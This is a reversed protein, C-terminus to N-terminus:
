EIVEDARLLLSRPVVVGIARAVRQDVVLEFKTPQEMPLEAPKAGNLIRAVYEAVRRFIATYDPGYSLMAGWDRVPALTPLRLTAALAAWQGRLAANIPTSGILLADPRERRLQAAAADFAEAAAVEITVLTVGLSRAAAVQDRHLAETEAAGQGAALACRSCRAIVIRQASPVAAKLLEIRKPVLEDALNSIGTVTGGPHALSAVLGARVPDPIAFVVVPTGRGAAVVARAAIGSTVILDVGLRAMEDAFEAYRETRGEAFRWEIALNAGETFGLERLRTRFAALAREDAASNAATFGLWGIRWNRGPTQAFLRMSVGGLAAAAVFLRALRRRDIV